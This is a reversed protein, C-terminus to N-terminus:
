SLFSVTWVCPLYVFSFVMSFFLFFFFFFFSFMIRKGAFCTAYKVCRSYFLYTVLDLRKGSHGPLTIYVDLISYILLLTWDSARTVLYRLTCTSFSYFFIWDSARTVLYRLKCMSFLGLWSPSLLSSLFVSVSTSSFLLSCFLCLLASVSSYSLLTM